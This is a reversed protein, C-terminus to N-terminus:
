LFLAASREHKASISFSLFYRMLGISNLVDFNPNSPAKNTTRLKPQRVDSSASVSKVRSGAEVVPM